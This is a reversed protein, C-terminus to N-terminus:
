LRGARDFSIYVGLSELYHLNRFLSGFYEVRLQRLLRDYQVPIQLYDLVIAACAALCDASQQQKRHLVSLLTM